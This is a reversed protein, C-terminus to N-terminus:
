PRGRRRAYARHVADRVCRVYNEIDAGNQIRNVAGASLRERLQPNERLKRLHGELRDVDLEEDLIGAEPTVLDAETGDGISAIVPLGHVMADSVALGGLGPLVFVDASLFYRSVEETVRGFFRVSEGLHAAREELAARAPGDGVIWLRPKKGEENPEDVIRAFADILLDVRKVPTLTGVFLVVFDNEAHADAYLAERDIRGIELLRQETDVVNTAVVIRDSPIGIREFYQASRRSYAITIEARREFAAILPQVVRRLLSPQRGKIAGLGWQVLAARGRISYLHAILNNPLNSAGECVIVHPKFGDLAAYLGPSVPAVAYGHRTRFRLKLSRLMQAAVEGDNPGNVVKTGPFSPGHFVKLEIGPLQALRQFLPMRYTQLVRNVVAVRLANPMDRSVMAGAQDGDAELM